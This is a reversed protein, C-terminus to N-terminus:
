LEGEGDFVKSGNKITEAALQDFNVMFTNVPLTPPDSTYNKNIILSGINGSIGECLKVYKTGAVLVPVLVPILM